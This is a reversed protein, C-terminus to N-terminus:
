FQLMALSCEQSWGYLICVQEALYLLEVDFVWRQLRQNGFISVAAKRTFLQSLVAHM